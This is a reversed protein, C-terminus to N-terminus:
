TQGQQPKPGMPPPSSSPARTTPDASIPEGSSSWIENLASQLYALYAPFLVLYLVLAIWGNLPEASAAVRQAKQVRQTGRYLSVLSPVVILGGLTVALTSNAPNQGLDYGRTRGYDRLERNVWYWWFFFYIGLTLVSLVAVLIPSRVKVQYGSGSLTLTYSAMYAV